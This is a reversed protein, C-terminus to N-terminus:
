RRSPSKTGDRWKQRGCWDDVDTRAQDVAVGHREQIKSHLKERSGNIAVLDDDTLKAWRKKASGKLQKWNEEVRNWDMEGEAFVFVKHLLLPVYM